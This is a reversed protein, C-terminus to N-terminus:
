AAFAQAEHFLHDLIRKSKGWDYWAGPIKAAAEVSTFASERHVSVVLEGAFSCITSPITGTLVCGDEAQDVQTLEIGQAAFSCLLAALVRGPPLSFRQTASKGTKIGWKSYLPNILGALKELSFGVPSIVDFAALLQEGTISVGRQKGARAIAQRVPEHLLLRAYCVEQQWDGLPENPLPVLEDQAPILPENQIVIRPAHAALMAGCSHCFNGAAKVGCHSCYM